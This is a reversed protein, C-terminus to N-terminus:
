WVVSLGNLPLVEDIVAQMERLDSEDDEEDEDFDDEQRSAEDSAPSETLSEAILEEDDSEDEIHQVIQQYLLESDNPNRLPKQCRRCSSVAIPSENLFYCFHCLRFHSKEATALESPDTGHFEDVANPKKRQTM